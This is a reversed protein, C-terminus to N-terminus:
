SSEELKGMAESSKVIARSKSYGASTWANAAAVVAALIVYALSDPNLATMIGSLVTVAVTIISNVKALKHESTDKGEKAM